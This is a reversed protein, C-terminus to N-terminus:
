SREMPSEVAPIERPVAASLSSLKFRMWFASNRKTRFRTLAAFGPRSSNRIRPPSRRPATSPVIKQAIGLATVRFARSRSFRSMTSHRILPRM